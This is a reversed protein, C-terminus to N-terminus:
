KSLKKLKEIQAAVFRANEGAEHLSTLLKDCATIIDEDANPTNIIQRINTDPDATLAGLMRLISALSFNACRLSRIINLRQM